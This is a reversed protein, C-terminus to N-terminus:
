ELARSPMLQTEFSRAACECGNTSEDIQDRRKRQRAVCEFDGRSEIAADIISKVECECHAVSARQNRRIAAEEVRHLGVKRYGDRPDTIERQFIPWLRRSSLECM